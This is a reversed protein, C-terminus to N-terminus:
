CTHGGLRPGRRLRRPVDPAAHQARLVDREQLSGSLEHPVDPSRTLQYCPDHATGDRVPQDEADVDGPCERHVTHMRDDGGGIQGVEPDGQAHGETMRREQLARQLRRQGDLPDAVDTLRDRDDHGLGLPDGLVGGAQDEGVDIREVRHRGALLREGRVARHEV